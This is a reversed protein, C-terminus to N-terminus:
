ELNAFAEGEESVADQRPPTTGRSFRPLGAALRADWEAFVEPFLSRMRVESRLPDRKSEAVYSAVIAGADWPHAPVIGVAPPRVRHPWSSPWRGPVAKWRGDLTTRFHTDM